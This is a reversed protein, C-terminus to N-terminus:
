QLGQRVAAVVHQAAPQQTVSRPLVATVVLQTAPSPAVVAVWALVIPLWLKVKIM